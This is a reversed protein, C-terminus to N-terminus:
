RTAIAQVVAGTAGAGFSPRIFKARTTLSLVGNSAPITMGAGLAGWTIGDMSGQMTSTGITGATCQVNIDTWKSVDVARGTDANAAAAWAIDAYDAFVTVTAEVVVM